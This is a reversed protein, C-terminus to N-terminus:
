TLAQSAHAQEREALITRVDVASERNKASFKGAM